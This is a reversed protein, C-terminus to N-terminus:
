RIYSCLAKFRVNSHTEDHGSKRREKIRKVILSIQRYEVLFRGMFFVFISWELGTLAVSSPALCLAYHLVLLTLYSLSDRVFIFYPTTLFRLYLVTLLCFSLLVCTLNSEGSILVIGRKIISVNKM